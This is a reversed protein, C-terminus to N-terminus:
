ELPKRSVSVLSRGFAHLIFWDMVRSMPVISRDWFQIQELKPESQKLFFKNGLSLLLGVSDLYRTHIRELDAPLEARLMGKDYRRHHGIAKDFPSYLFNFAPVLIVLHGGPKLLTYARHLEAKSDEIHEIVDLYLITDFRKGATDATTGRIREGALLRPASVNAQVLDLLASDPELFTYSTVKDNILYDANVGMGCGVDLVDGQVFPKLHAAFYRKWNRAHQFLELEAGVYKM